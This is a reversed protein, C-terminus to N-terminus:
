RSRYRGLGLLVIRAFDRENAIEFPVRGLLLEYTLVGVSWM